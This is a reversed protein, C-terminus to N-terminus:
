SSETVPVLFRKIISSKNIVSNPIKQDTFNQKTFLTGPGLIRKYTNNTHNYVLLAPDTANDVSEVIMIIWNDISEQQSISIDQNSLLDDKIDDVTLSGQHTKNNNAVRPDVPQGTNVTGSRRKLTDQQKNNSIVTNMIIYIISIIIVSIIFIIFIPKLSKAIYDNNDM